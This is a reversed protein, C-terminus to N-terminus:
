VAVNANRKLADIMAKADILANNVRGRKKLDISLYPDHNRDYLTPVGVMFFSEGRAIFFITCYAGNVFEGKEVGFRKFVHQPKSSYGDAIFIEHERYKDRIEPSMGANAMMVEVTEKTLMGSKPKARTM